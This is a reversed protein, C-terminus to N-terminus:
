HGFHLVAVERFKADHEHGERRNVREETERRRRSEEREREVGDGSGVIGIEGNGDRKCGTASPKKEESAATRASRRTKHVGNKWSFLGSGGFLRSM